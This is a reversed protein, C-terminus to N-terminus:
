SKSLPPSWADDTHQPDPSLWCERSRLRERVLRRLEREPLAEALATWLVDRPKSRLGGAADLEELAQLAEARWLLQAIAKPELARNTKPARERVIRVSDGRPRAAEVGWWAPVTALVKELHREACVATMRDFVKGYAEVQRPLRELSDRESKIEFGELRGNIVALDVRCEGALVGMEHVLRVNSKGAERAALRAHLVARIDLDRM